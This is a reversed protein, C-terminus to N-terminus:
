THYWEYRFISSQAIRYLNNQSIALHVMKYPSAETYNYTLLIKISLNDGNKIAPAKITIAYTSYLPSKNCIYSYRAGYSSGSYLSSYQISCKYLITRLSSSVLPLHHVSWSSNYGLTSIAALGFICCLVISLDFSSLESHM